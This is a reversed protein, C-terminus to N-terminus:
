KFFKEGIRAVIEATELKEKEIKDLIKNKLISLLKYKQLQSKLTQNESQLTQNELKEKEILDLKAQLKRNKAQLNYFESMKDYLDNEIAIDKVRKVEEKLKSINHEKIKYRGVTIERNKIFSYEVGRINMREAISNIFRIDIEFEESIELTTM